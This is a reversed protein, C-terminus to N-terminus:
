SVGVAWGIFEDSARREDDGHARWRAGLYEHFVQVGLASLPVEQLRPTRSAEFHAQELAAAQFAPNRASGLATRSYALAGCADSPVALAAEPEGLGDLTHCLAGVAHHVSLGLMRALTHTAHDHLSTRQGGPVSAEARMVADITLAELAPLAAFSAARAARALEFERPDHSSQALLGQLAELTPGLKQLASPPLCRVLARQALAHAVRVLGLHQQSRPRCTRALREYVLPAHGLLEHQPLVINLRRESL